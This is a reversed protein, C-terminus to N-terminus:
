GRTVGDEATSSAARLSGATDIQRPLFPQRIQSSRSICPLQDLMMSFFRYEYKFDLGIHAGFHLSVEGTCDESSGKESALGAIGRSSSGGSQLKRSVAVGFRSRWSRCCWFWSKAVDEERVEWADSNWGSM